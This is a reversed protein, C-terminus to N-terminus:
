RYDQPYNKRLYIQKEEKSMKAWIKAEIDCLRMQNKALVQELNMIVGDVTTVLEETRKEQKEITM